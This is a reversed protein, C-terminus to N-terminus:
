IAKIVVSCLEALQKRDNDCTSYIHTIHSPITGISSFYKLQGKFTLHTLSRPLHTLPQELCIERLHNVPQNFFGALTLHTLALPLFDVSHNFKGGFVLRTLNQPLLNAAQNFLYGFNLKILM